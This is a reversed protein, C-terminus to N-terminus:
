AYARQPEDRDRIVNSAIDAFAHVTCIPGSRNKAVILEIDFRKRFAEAKDEEAPSRELYYAERYLLCAFDAIQEISGSWNMDGLTPRKDNRSETQRNVQALAIIPTQLQKALPKLENVLDSTDAAKNETRKFPKVLGIHDIIIAGRPVGAKDWARLQRQAQIRIDEITLGGRDMVSIPLSALARASGRARDKQWNTGRGKLLDGYRVNGGEPGQVPLQRDYAIDAILRAQVERLPMELSFFMVGRGQEAIGRALCVAKVSKGMSTRGAIFWVDDPRIGGTVHDICGLGVSTGAFKGAFSDELMELASLGAPVAVTRASQKAIDAAGRELFGLVTEGTTDFTEAALKQAEATLAQVDRRISRDLLLEVHSPLSFLHARDIAEALYAMGGRQQYDADAKIAENIAIPEVLRGLRKAALMAEWILANLRLAFHHPQLREFADESQAPDFLACGIVAYEAEPSSIV